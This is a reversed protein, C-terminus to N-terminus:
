RKDEAPARYQAWNRAQSEVSAPTLGAGQDLRRSTLLEAVATLQDLDRTEAAFSYLMMRGDNGSWFIHRGDKTVAGTSLMKPMPVRVTLPEGMVADCLRGVGDRDATFLARDGSVFEVAYVQHDHRM